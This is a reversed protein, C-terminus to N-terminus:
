PLSRLFLDGLLQPVDVIRFISFLFIWGATFAAAALGFRRPGTSVPFVGSFGRALMAGHIREARDWTRLLLSGLLPGIQALRVGRAGCGRLRYARMTRAGEEALVFIYRYVFLIQGAFIRPMGFAELARCIAPLGTLAVLIIAASATLLVRIFISTLSIWGGWIALSGIQLLPQRDFIPNFLGVALAFPAVLLIKRLIYGTPLNGTAVLVAPFLLYPLLASITYRDFSVVYLIFCVTTLVKARADLRHLGTQGGALQELRRFDLFTGDIALM